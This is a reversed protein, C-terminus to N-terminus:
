AYMHVSELSAEALACRDLPVGPFYERLISPRSSRPNIQNMQDTKNM